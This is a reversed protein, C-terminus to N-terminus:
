MKKFLTIEREEGYKCWVAVVTNGSDYKIVKCGERKQRFEWKGKVTLLLKKSPIRNKLVDKVSPFAQDPMLCAVIMRRPSLEKYMVLCPESNALIKTGNKVGNKEFLVLGTIKTSCDYVVHGRNDRQKVRYLEEGRTQMCLAFNVMEKEDSNIVIVYEYGDNTPAKGHDIWASVFNGQTVRKGSNNKSKQKARMIKLCTADAIYFGCGNVDLLWVPKDINISKCVPFKSMLGVGSVFIPIHKDFLATQFLITETCYKDNSNGIGSGLCIIRNDFCFVSKYAMFDVTFNKMKNESLKVGFIGNMGQLSVAGAFSEKSYILLSGTRPSELLDLPLHVVTAGSYRNWDWGDECFGSGRRSVPNGKNLIQVTGYSQYRGFRNNKAYIESSWVHRNYGKIMVMWDDRRHVGFAGYNFAFFGQPSKCSRAGVALLEKAIAGGRKSGSLRLYMGALEFDVIAASNVDGCLALEGIADIVGRSIGGAFPHRGCIGFGWDYFSCYKVMGLLAVKLNRRGMGDLCYRTGRMVQLYRGLGVYGGVCYAPYVGHHHFGTGDGKLGGNVGASFQLSGELWQKFCRYELDRLQLDDLLSVAILRSLILTNWSDMVGQLGGIMGEPRCQQRCEQIGSWYLIVKAYRGLQGEDCLVGKMLLLAPAISRFQYGYHHCTGMGSGVAFGQDVMYDMLLLFMKKSEVDAFTCWGRALNLLLDGVYQLSVGSGGFECEDMSLLARGVIGGGVQRKIGLANFKRKAKALGQLPITARIGNLLREEILKLDNGGGKDVRQKKFCYKYNDYWYWLASWHNCNLAPNIYPLQKDPTVRLHVARNPFSMRDFFLVGNNVINPATIRVCDAVKGGHKVVEMDREFALWCARWGIFDLNYVFRYYVNDDRCFEFLLKGKVAKENYIWLLMGGGRIRLARELNHPKRILISDGAGWQWCVSERGLKCHKRSISLMGLKSAQWNDPVAGELGIYDVKGAVVLGSWFLLLCYCVVFLRM